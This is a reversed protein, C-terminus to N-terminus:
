RLKDGYMAFDGDEFEPGLAQADHYMQNQIKSSLYEKPKEAKFKQYWSWTRKESTPKFNDSIKRSQPPAVFPNSEVKPADDLGIAKYFTKPSRRAMQNVEDETLDLEEMKDKLVSTYSSGYKERLKAKVQQYNAEAIRDKEKATLKQEILSDIDIDPQKRTDPLTDPEQSKATILQNIYDELNAKADSNAKEKLYMDRLDDKQRVLMKVYEDAEYKGRALSAVDKFKKGEGVLETLYDKTEDVTVTDESDLLGAM